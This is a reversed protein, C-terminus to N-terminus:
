AKRTEPPIEGPLGPERHHLPNMANFVHTMLNAGAEIGKLGDDHTAASHGMSVHIRYENTLIRINELAGPLEPALTVVKISQKLNEGGYVDELRSPGPALMNAAAHAGKKSPALFPGEVHAGLVSASGPGHNPKLFPLVAHFVGAPVTPVTPFFGTVGTSPLYKALKRVGAQYSKPDEYHAFHFGLAGNIQLELFGPSIIAGEIDVVGTHPPIPSNPIIFGNTDVTLPSSILRGNKCQRCNVFQVTSM